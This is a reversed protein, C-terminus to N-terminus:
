HRGIYIRLTFALVRVFRDFETSQVVLLILQPIMAGCIAMAPRMLGTGPVRSGPRIWLSLGGNPGVTLYRTWGWVLPYQSPLRCETRKVKFSPNDMRFLRLSGVPCGDAVIRRLAGM